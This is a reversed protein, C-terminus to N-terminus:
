APSAFGIVHKHGGDSTRTFPNFWGEYQVSDSWNGHVVKVRWGDTAVVVGVHGNIGNTSHSWVIVDGKAPKRSGGLPKFRVRWEDAFDDTYSSNYVGAAKVGAQTWVWWAFDSCWAHCIHPTYFLNTYKNCENGPEHYGHRYQDMAVKVIRDRLVRSRAYSKPTTRTPSFRFDNLRKVINYGCSARDAGIGNWIWAELKDFHRLPPTWTRGGSRSTWTGTSLSVRGKGPFYNKRIAPDRGNLDVGVIRLVPSRGDRHTDTLTWSIKATEESLWTVKVNVRAGRDCSWHTMSETRPAVASAPTLATLPIVLGIFIATIRGRVHAEQRHAPERRRPTRIV